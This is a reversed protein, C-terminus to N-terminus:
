TEFSMLPCVCLACAGLRVEHVRRRLVGGIPAVAVSWTVPDKCVARGVVDGRAVVRVNIPDNGVVLLLMEVVLRALRLLQSRSGLLSVNRSPPPANNHRYYGVNHCM